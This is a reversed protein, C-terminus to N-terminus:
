HSLFYIVTNIGMRVAELNAEPDFFDMTWGCHIDGPCCVTMLRGTGREFLGHTGHPVGQLHPCGNKMDFYVHYIEHDHPIKRMPNDPFLRNVLEVYCRFFRDGKKLWVCDDALVFGGRELFERLNREERESLRFYGESTMFVFPHLCMEDFDDLRVTKPAMSVNINTLERLKRRIHVDAHQYVGWISGTEDYVSFKLRPFVFQGTQVAEDALAKRGLMLSGLSCLAMGGLAAGGKLVHRRSMGRLADVAGALEEDTRGARRDDIAHHANRPIM